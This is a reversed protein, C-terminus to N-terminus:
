TRAMGSMSNMPMALRRNTGIAVGITKCATAINEILLRLEHTVIPNSRQKEVLYHSLTSDTIM